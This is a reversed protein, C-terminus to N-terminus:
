KLALGALDGQDRWATLIYFYEVSGGGYTTNQRNAEEPRGENNYYGPTCEKLFKEANRAKDIIQGVWATEAEVTPEVTRAQRSQAQDIVYAVHTAQEDLNHPYNATFGGQAGGLLYLNPFGNVMIGHLSRVGNAWAETISRGDRGYIEYGTRQTFKTGVEFGTAYVLCDVEFSQGNAIVASETIREVGHGNTDVLTVNPRNFTELYEDHFCPRKCFQRYWPKLAEAVEHDRVVQDVRGRIREMTAFDALEALEALKDPSLGEAGEKRAIHVLERFAETWGDSVLDEAQYGGSVLINFNEMRRKQWGPALTKVWEPDTPRDGRVNVASPTRQFVYLAKASAGLHPVCQVATAGTGIVGVRKNSLRDLNGRVDGGTFAYDWRATHFAHGKFTEIGPIGPLKPSNLPGNSMVVFRAKMADGRNTHVVWREISDDWRLETVSTQFCVDDYLNYQRAIRRSHEFIEPARAYREIPTYGTEELLPLYVYSEIDCAAGPYRNWYWTGGFDAASELMRIQKVGANRLRVGALLGGFGGGIVLVEVEDTLPARQIPTEVYPDESFQAFRDAIRVYQSNGDERVRKDRERRYKERLVDPDFARTETDATTTDTM